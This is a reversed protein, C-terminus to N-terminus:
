SFFATPLVLLVLFPVARRAEWGARSRRLLLGQASATGLESISMLWLVREGTGSGVKQCSEKSNGSPVFDGKRTLM